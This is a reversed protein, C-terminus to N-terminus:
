RFFQYSAGITLALNHRWASTSHNAPLPRDTDSDTNFYSTPYQIQYLYDNFDARLQFNGGKVWRVGGGFSFAFSTGFKFGGVDAGGKFDSVIGIGGNVVPVFNRWSKQGTLNLTLNADAAYLPWSEKGVVRRAPTSDPDIITRESRMTALRATFQAPGGIRVDYRVGLMPGSTPAVGAPDKQAAYWGGFVTAEQRFELDRYPSRDPPYGVQAAAPAAGILFRLALAIGAAMRHTLV